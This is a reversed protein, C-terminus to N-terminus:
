KMLVTTGSEHGGDLLANEQPRSPAVSQRPERSPVASAVDLSCIGNAQAVLQTANRFKSLVANAQWPARYTSFRSHYQNVAAPARWLLVLPRLLRRWCTQM